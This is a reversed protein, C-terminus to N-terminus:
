PQMDDTTDANDTNDTNTDDDITLAMDTEYTEDYLTIRITARNRRADMKIIDAKDILTLPGSIIEISGDATRRGRSVGAELASDYRLMLGSIARMQEDPIPAAVQGPGNVFRIVFPKRALHYYLQVTMDCEVLVYGPLLARRTVELRGGRREIAARAPATAHIGAKRLRAAVDTEKGTMVQLAYWKSM